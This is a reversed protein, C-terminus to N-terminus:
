MRYCYIDIWDFCWVNGDKDEGLNAERIDGSVQSPKCNMIKTFDNNFDRYWQLMWESDDGFITKFKDLRPTWENEDSTYLTQIGKALLKCKKTGTKFKEVAIWVPIENKTDYRILEPIVKLNKAHKWGNFIKKFLLKFSPHSQTNLKIVYNGSDFVVGDSGAGIFKDIRRKKINNFFTAIGSPTRDGKYLESDTFVMLAILLKKDDDSINPFKYNFEDLEYVDTYDPKLSKLFTIIDESAVLSESIYKNISKM